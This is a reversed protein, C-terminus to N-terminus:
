GHDFIITMDNGFGARDGFIDEALVPIAPEVVQL